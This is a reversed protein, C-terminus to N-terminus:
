KFGWYSSGRFVKTGGPAKEKREPRSGAPEETEVKTTAAEVSHPVAGTDSGLFLFM